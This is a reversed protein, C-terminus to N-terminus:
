PTFEFATQVNPLALAKLRAVLAEALTTANARRSDDLAQAKQLYAQYTQEIQEAMAEPSMVSQLDDLQQQWTQSDEVLSEPPPTINVRSDTSRRYSSM